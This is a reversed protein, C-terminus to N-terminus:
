DELCNRRLWVCTLQCGLCTCPLSLSFCILSTVYIWSFVFAELHVKRSRCIVFLFFELFLNEQDGRGWGGLMKWLRGPPRDRIPCTWRSVTLVEGMWRVPPPRALPVSPSPTISDWGTLSDRWSDTPRDRRERGRRERKENGKWKKGIGKGEGEEERERGKGLSPKGAGWEPMVGLRESVASPSWGQVSRLVKKISESYAM